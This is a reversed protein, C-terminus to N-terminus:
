VSANTILSPIAVIPAAAVTLAEQRRQKVVDVLGVKLDAEAPVRPCHRLPIVTDGLMIGNGVVQGLIATHLADRCDVIAPAGPRSSSPGRRPARRVTFSHSVRRAAHPRTGTEHPDDGLPVGVRYWARVACWDEHSSCTWHPPLWGKRQMYRRFEYVWFPEAVNLSTAGGQTEQPLQAECAAQDTALDAPPQPLHVWGSPACGQLAVVLILSGCLGQLAQHGVSMQVGGRGRQGPALAHRVGGDGSARSGSCCPLD